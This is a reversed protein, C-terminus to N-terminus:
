RDNCRRSSARQFRRVFQGPELSETQDTVLGAAGALAASSATVQLKQRLMMTYSIDLALAGIGIFVPLFLAFWAAIAGKDDSFIGSLRSSSQNRSKKM